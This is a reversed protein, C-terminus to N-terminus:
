DAQGISMDEIYVDGNDASYFAWCEIEVVGVETPTFTITLQEWDTDNAKTAVVDSDVGAIQKGRCVLKGGINTAHSKKMYAKVTVLKNALVAIKAVKLDLPYSSNRNSSTVSLKWMIGTGGERDTDVSNIQGGDTFIRHNGSRDHNHSYLRSNAFDTYGSVETEETILANFIYNTGSDNYIGSTGNGSTSLYKIINNNAFCFDVGYLNNNARSLTTISNGHAYTYNVGSGNNNANSITTIVNNYSNGYYVGYDNNNNANSITTIINNYSDSYNVGYSNNNVNALTTIINNYSYSYIIGHGNNSVNSLTTIINNDSFDYYIGQNYRVVNLYNLTTYSKFTFYIGRGNGNLGDFFTEGDQETNSTNYGGQFQINNGAEGSCKIEQVATSASSALNTKITERKYTTVTEPSTGTTSYGKGSSASCGTDNDLMLTVGNISQLGYWAESGGQEQSNKSILSQLNLGSSTCAVIDDLYIYKSGTPAASDSYLAISQISSGLNGGGERALTLPLWKYCSPIAPIKITDVVTAGAVDSCLCLKWNGASLAVNNYIWFSIKQYSSLDLTGTAFYAYLKDTTPSAPATIKSAYSGEKRTTTTGTTASNAATWANECLTITATQATALTVTKSLNTWTANGISSPAPSKAIRVIDGESLADFGTITKKALAWTSGDNSDSGNVYDMYYTAM